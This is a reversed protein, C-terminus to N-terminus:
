IVACFSLESVLIRFSPLEVTSLYLMDNIVYLVVLGLLQHHSKQSTAQRKSNRSMDDEVSRKCKSGEPVGDVGKVSKHVTDLIFNSVRYPIGLVITAQQESFLHPCCVRAKKQNEDVVM